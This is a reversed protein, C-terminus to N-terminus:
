NNYGIARMREELDPRIPGAPTPERTSEAKVFRQRMADTMAVQRLKGGEGFRFARESKFKGQNTYFVRHKVYGQEDKFTNAYEFTGWRDCDLFSM